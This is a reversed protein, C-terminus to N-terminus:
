NLSSSHMWVCEVIPVAEDNWRQNFHNEILLVHRTFVFKFATINNKRGEEVTMNVVQGLWQM